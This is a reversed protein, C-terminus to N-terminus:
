GLCPRTRWWGWNGASLASLPKTCKQSFTSFLFTSLLFCFLPSNLLTWTVPVSTCWTGTTIHFAAQARVLGQQVMTALKKETAPAQREASRQNFVESVLHVSQLLFAVLRRYVGQAGQLTHYQIAKKADGAHTDHVTGVDEGPLFVYFFFPPFLVRLVSVCPSVWLGYVVWLCGVSLGCWVGVVGM